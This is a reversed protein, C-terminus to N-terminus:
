FFNNGYPALKNISTITSFTSSIPLRPQNTKDQQPPTRILFTTFFTGIIIQAYLYKILAFFKVPM